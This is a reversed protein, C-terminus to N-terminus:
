TKLKVRVLYMDSTAYLYEGNNGIACNSVSQGTHITGLHKGGEDLILVGGPGTAFVIGRDNVKLGDPLGRLGKRQLETGDFFLEGGGETLNYKMIVPNEPDSNAVFLHNEDKSLAIGNPRSLESTILVLSDNNIYRYVGQFDIEKLPDDMKGVLGYPPDTFFLDGNSHFTADNPSNFKKGNYHSVITVFKPLPDTLPANMFAMRRDGHQCLVLEGKDNLLLGNSGPEGGREIDGTYGSPQLYVETGQNESWKYITNMPVDSFLLFSGDEIWLPGESWEFGEALLEIKVDPSIIEDLDPDLRQIEGISKPEVSQQKQNSNKTDCSLFHFGILLIFVM